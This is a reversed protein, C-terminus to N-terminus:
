PKGMWNPVDSHIWPGYLGPPMKGRRAASAIMYTQGYYFRELVPDDPLSIWTTNWLDTRLVNAGCNENSFSRTHFYMAYYSTQMAGSWFRKNAAVITGTGNAAASAARSLATLLPDQNCITDPKMLTGCLDWDSVIATM